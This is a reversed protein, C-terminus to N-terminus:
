SCKRDSFENWDIREVFSHNDKTMSQNLISTRTEDFNCSKMFEDEPKYLEIFWM